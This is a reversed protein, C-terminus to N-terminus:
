SITIYKYKLEIALVVSTKKASYMNINFIAMVNRSM